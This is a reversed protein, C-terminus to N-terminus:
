GVAVYNLFNSEKQLYAQPTYGSFLKFDNIFHAQDYYGSELAIHAWAIQKAQGIEQIAKQFRMIKLYEKPTLGVHDKFIKILHKQSYGVKDSITKISSKDPQATIRNVAYEVFPNVILKSKFRKSLYTEAIAFKAPVTGAELIMERLLMIDPTLVLDGDVVSDTLTYLPMEVFPYSAGKKFNIVFMESHKGSPITIFRSRIGSFWVRRCAQIEKLTENDYIYQAGELLDFIINVNGDPLFRDISHDPSYGKYYVFSDIFTHLPFAPTHCAYIM